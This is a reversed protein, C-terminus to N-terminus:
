RETENFRPRASIMAEYVKEPPQQKNLPAFGVVVSRVARPFEGYGESQMSRLDYEVPMQDKGAYRMELTPEKPVLVFGEAEICSLAARALDVMDHPSRKRENIARAITEILDTM